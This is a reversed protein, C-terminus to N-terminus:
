PRYSGLGSYCLCLCGAAPSRALSGVHAHTSLCPSLHTNKDPTVCMNQKLTYFATECQREGKQEFALSNKGNCIYLLLALTDFLFSIDLEELIVIMQIM